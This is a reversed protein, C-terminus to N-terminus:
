MKEINVISWANYGHNHLHLGLEAGAPVPADARWRLQIAAAESPIAVAYEAIVVGDLLVAFHARAPEAADLDGHWLDVTLADGLALDVETAQSLALYNCVGTQVELAGDEVGWAAPPCVIQAPRHDALPDAIAEVTEFGDLEVLASPEANAADATDVLEDADCGACALAAAAFLLAALQTLSTPM